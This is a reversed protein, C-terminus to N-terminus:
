FGNVAFFLRKINPTLDFDFFERTSISELSALFFFCLGFFDLISTGCLIKRPGSRRSERTVQLKKTSIAGAGSVFVEDEYRM